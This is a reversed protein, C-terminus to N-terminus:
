VGGGLDGQALGGGGAVVKEIGKGVFRCDAKVEDIPQM